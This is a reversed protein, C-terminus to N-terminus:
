IRWSGVFKNPGISGGRLARVDRTSPGSNSIDEIRCCFGVTYDVMVRTGFASVCLTPNLSEM